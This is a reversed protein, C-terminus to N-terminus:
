NQPFTDSALKTSDEANNGQFRTDNGPHHHRTQVSRQVEELQLRKHRQIRRQSRSGRELM